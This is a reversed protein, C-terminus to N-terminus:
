KKAKKEKKVKAPAEIAALPKFPTLPVANGKMRKYAFHGVEKSFQEDFYFTSELREGEVQYKIFPTVEDIVSTAIRQYFKRITNDVSMKEMVEYLAISKPGNDQPTTKM